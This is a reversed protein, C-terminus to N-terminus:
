GKFKLRVVSTTPTQLERYADTPGTSRDHARRPGVPGTAVDQSGYWSVTGARRYEFERRRVGERGRTDHHIPTPVSVATKEILCVVVTRARARASCVADEIAGTREDFLPDARTAALGPGSRGQHEGAGVWSPSPCRELFAGAREDAQGGAHQASDEAPQQALRQHTWRSFLQAPVSTALTALKRRYTNEDARPAGSRPLDGLGHLGQAQYRDRWKVVTSVACRVLRATARM